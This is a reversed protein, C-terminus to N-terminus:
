PRTEGASDERGTKNASSAVTAKTEAGKAAIRALFDVDMWVEKQRRPLATDRVYAVLRTRNLEKSVCLWM